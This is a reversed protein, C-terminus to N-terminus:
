FTSVTNTSTRSPSIEILAWDLSTDLNTPGQGRLLEYGSSCAVTGFHRDFENIGRILDQCFSINQQMAELKDDPLGLKLGSQHKELWLQLYENYTKRLKEHDYPSPVEMSQRQNGSSTWPIATHVKGVVDLEPDYNGAVKLPSKLCPRVVHHCTLGYTNFLGELRLFCGVTGTSWNLNKVGISLGIHPRVQYNSPEDMADGRLVRGQVFEVPVAQTVDDLEVTLSSWSEPCYSNTTATIVITARPNDTEGTPFQTYRYVLDIASWDV